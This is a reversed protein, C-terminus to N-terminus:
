GNLQAQKACCPSIKCMDSTTFGGFDLATWFGSGWKEIKGQKFPSITPSSGSRHQMGTELLRYMQCFLTWWFRPQTAFWHTLNVNFQTYSPEAFDYFDIQGQWALRRYHVIHAHLKKRDPIWSSNEHMGSSQQSLRVVVKCNWSKLFNSTM